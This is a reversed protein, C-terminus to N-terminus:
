PQDDYGRRGQSSDGEEEEPYFIREQIPVGPASVHKKAQGNLALPPSRREDMSIVNRRRGIGGVLAAGGAKPVRRVMTFTLVDGIAVSTLVNKIEAPTRVRTGNLSVILDWRKAGAQSLSCGASLEAILVGTISHETSTVLNLGLSGDPRRIKMSFENSLEYDENLRDGGASSALFDRQAVAQSQAHQHGHAHSAARPPAPTPLSNRRGHTMVSGRRSESPAAANQDHDDDCFYTELKLSEDSAVETLTRGEIKIGQRVYHGDRALYVCFYLYDGGFGAGGSNSNFSSTISSAHSHSHGMNSGSSNMRERMALSLQSTGGDADADGGKLERQLDRIESVWETAEGTSEAFAIFSKEPALVAFAASETTPIGKDCIAVSVLELWHNVKWTGPGRSLTLTRFASEQTGYILLDNFLVFRFKKPGRRSIKSLSGEKVFLRSPTVLEPVGFEQAIQLVRMRAESANVQTNVSQTSDSIKDLTEKILNVEMENSESTSKLVQQLLLRYRPMRQVPQILFDALMRSKCSAQLECARIFAAVQPNQKLRALVRASNDYNNIYVSYMKFFQAYQSMTQVTKLVREHSECTVHKELDALFQQNCALVTKINAFVASLDEPSVRTSGPMDALEKSYIEMPILFTNVIIDVAEVYTKETTYIEDVARARQRERKEDEAM